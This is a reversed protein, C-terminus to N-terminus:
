ALDGHIVLQSYQTDVMGGGYNGTGHLAQSSTNANAEDLGVQNNNPTADYSNTAICIYDTDSMSNTLNVQSYGTSVDSISTTNFSKRVSPGTFQNYNSWAKALGQKLSMTATAGVTVSIDNATTKGTLTDVKVESM